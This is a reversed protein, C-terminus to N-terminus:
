DVSDSKRWPIRNGLRSEAVRAAEGPNPLHGSAAKDFVIEGDIFIKFVGKAGSRLEIGTLVPAWGTAIEAAVRLAEDLHDCPVCYEIVVGYTPSIM